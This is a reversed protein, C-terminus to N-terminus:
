PNRRAPAFTWFHREDPLRMLSGSSLMSNEFFRVVMLEATNEVVECTGALVRQVSGRDDTLPGEYDLYLLRHPPLVEAAIPEDCCPERLLRWCLASEEEELLLDWHLFPSDHRLIVFRRRMRTDNVQFIRHLTRDLLSCL